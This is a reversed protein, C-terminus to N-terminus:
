PKTNIIENAIAFEQTTLENQLDAALNRGTLDRYARGVKRMMSETPIEELIRFLAEEDTGWGFANDNEFAMQIRIAYNAPNGEELAQSERINKKFKKVLARIGLFTVAGLGTALLITTTQKGVSVKPRNQIAQAALLPLAM